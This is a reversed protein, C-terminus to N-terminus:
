PANASRASPRDTSPLMSSEHQPAVLVPEGQQSTEADAASHGSQTVARSASDRQESRWLWTAVGGVWWNGCVLQRQM